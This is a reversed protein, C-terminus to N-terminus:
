KASIAERKRPKPLLLCASLALLPLALVWHQGAVTRSNLTWKPKTKTSAHSADIKSGTEWGFPLGENVMVDRWIIFRGNEHHFFLALRNIRIFASEDQICSRVWSITVVCTMVLMVCGIKRRWGRFIERM